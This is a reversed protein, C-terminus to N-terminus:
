NKCTNCSKQCSVHMYGSNEECFGKSAWDECFKHDDKCKSPKPDPDCKGCSKKCNPLMYGSNSECHGKSAWDSCYVNNDKCTGPNPKDTVPSETPKETVTETTTITTTKPTTTTKIIAGCKNCSKKCSEHMYESNSECYGKSSWDPCYANTDVCDTPCIDCSKKCEEKMYESNKECEGKAAWDSCFQNKDQCNSPKSDCKKCSKKCYDNMYKPNVECQGKQAWDSCFQNTDVCGTPKPLPNGDCEYLLNIGKIDTQSFGGKWGKITVGQQRPYMTPINYDRAFAYANYHMVSGYDYPLGLDQTVSRTKKEFAFALGPWINSWNITIYNDRDFRSQEHWFGIAHGLEHIVLGFFVCNNGLSLTQVGGVRGVPCNCGTGKVIHIYDAHHTRPVFRLCTKAHYEAMARVIVAREHAPYYSSIVYPIVGGPWKMRPNSIASDQGNTEKNLIIERLQDATQLQIDGQFYKSERFPSIHDPVPALLSDDLLSAAFEEETIAPGPIDSAVDNHDGILIDPLKDCGILSSLFLFPLAKLILCKMIINFINHNNLFIHV